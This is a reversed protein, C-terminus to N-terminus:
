ARRTLLFLLKAPGPLGSWAMQKRRGLSELLVGCAQRALKFLVGLSKGGRAWLCAVPRGRGMTLLLDYRPRNNGPGAYLTSKLPAAGTHDLLDAPTTRKPPGWARSVAVSIELTSIVPGQTEGSQSRPLRWFGLLRESPLAAGRSHFDHGGGYRREPHSFSRTEPRM